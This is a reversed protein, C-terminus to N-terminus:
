SGEVARRPKTASVGSRRDAAGRHRHRSGGGGQRCRGQARSVPPPSAPKPQAMANHAEAEAEAKAKAIEGNSRQRNEEAQAQRPRPRRGAGDSLRRLSSRCRQTSRAAAIDGNIDGRRSTIVGNIRPGAIRWLVVFLFAFTVALWFLQSPFTDDRVASLRGQQPSGDDRHHHRSPM